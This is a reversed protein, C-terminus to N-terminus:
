DAAGRAHCLAYLVAVSVFLWVLSLGIGALAAGAGTLRGGSRGIRVLAVIGLLLAAAAPAWFSALCAAQPLTGGALQQIGAFLLPGVCPLCFLAVVPAFQALRSERPAPPIGSALYLGPTYEGQQETV